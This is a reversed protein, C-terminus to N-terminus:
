KNDLSRYEINSTFDMEKLNNKMEITQNKVDDFASIIIATLSDKPTDFKKNSIEDDKFIKPLFSSVWVVFIVGTIFFAILFAAAKKQKDSKQRYKDIFSGM